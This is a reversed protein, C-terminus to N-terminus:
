KAGVVDGMVLHVFGGDASVSPLDLKRGPANAAERTEWSSVVPQVNWGARLGFLVGDFGRVSGGLPVVYDVGLLAQLGLAYSEAGRTGDAFGLPNIPRAPLGKPDIMLSSAGLGVGLMGYARMRGTSVFVRGAHLMFQGAVLALDRGGDVSEHASAFQFELAGMWRASDSWLRLGLGGGGPNQELTGYGARVFRENLRDADWGSRGGFLYVAGGVDPPEARATSAAFSVSLFALFAYSSRMSRSRDLLLSAARALASQAHKRTRTLAGERALRGGSGFHAARASRSSHPDGRAGM